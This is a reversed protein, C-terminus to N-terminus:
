SLVFQGVLKELEEATVALQQASAAIQQTSASTQETSASVEETSASSSEAVQAVTNMSERMRDGSAAIQRIAAAIQEVRTSMDEVSQGIQVFAERAQEVTEVGGKTQEAGVEVVQVARQTEQQIQEILEAITAAAQQSEEALHRVEEAVVAFGRGHEGARAAEIAANLALLNTQAAIGTITEVIGGIQDSKEGLARIADSTEASSDRVAKMAASAEEAASVGERALSRAEEAAAATEDATEASQRSAEALEETVRKVDDVERVQQEAGQAVSGVAHAIEGIARGAEESTSAMQTSAASLSESNVSIENIMAAIKVRMDNYGAIASQANGLMENFVEALHGVNQGDKADIPTTVPTIDIRLDGDNMAQMASRLDALCHETLSELRETLAELSSHDGLKERLTERMTNYGELSAQASAIMENYRDAVFGVPEGEVEPVIPQLEADVAVTLDGENMSSLGQELQKLTGLLDSMGSQLQFTTSTEGLADSMRSQLEVFAHGLEDGDSKPKVPVNLHGNAFERAAESMGKLHAIVARFSDAVQSIEDRGHVDLEVDVRGEAVRDAADAVKALPKTISRIIAFTILAALLVAIIGIVISLTLNSNTTAPIRAGITNEENGMQDRLKTFDRQVTNSIAGNAITVERTAQVKAQNIVAADTAGAAATVIRHMRDTHGNYQALDRVLTNTLVRAKASLPTRLMEALNNNADKQGQVVQKWTAAMLSAQRSDNLWILATYMNTQDDATLWGDHAAAALDRNNGPIQDANYASKVGNFGTIAIVAVVVLLAALIGGLGILRTRVTVGTLLAGLRGGKTAEPLDRAPDQQTPPASPAHVDRSVFDTM